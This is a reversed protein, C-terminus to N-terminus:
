LLSLNVGHKANVSAFEGSTYMQCAWLHEKALLGKQCVNLQYVNAWRQGLQEQLHKLIYGYVGLFLIDIITTLM